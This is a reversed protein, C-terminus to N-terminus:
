SKLKKHLLSIVRATWETSVASTEIQTFGKAQKFKQALRERMGGEGKEFFFKEFNTILLPQDAPIAIRLYKNYLQNKNKSHHCSLTM